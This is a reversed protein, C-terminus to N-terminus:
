EVAIDDDDEEDDEDEEEDDDEDPPPDVTCCSSVASTSANACRVESVLEGNWTLSPASVSVSVLSVVWAITM